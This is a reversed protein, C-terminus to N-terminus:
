KRKNDTKKEDSSGGGLDAMELLDGESLIIMVVVSLIVFSGFSGYSIDRLVPREDHDLTIGFVCISFLSVLLCFFGFSFFLNGTGIWYIVSVILLVINTATAIILAAKKTVSFVQLMLYTFLLIAVAMLTAIFLTVIDVPLEKTLYYASVSFGSGIFNLLYSFVYFLSWKRALLHLPIALIMLVLGVVLGFWKTCVITAIQTSITLIGLAIISFLFVLFAKPKENVLNEIM